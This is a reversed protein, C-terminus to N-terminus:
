LEFVSGAPGEAEWRRDIEKKTETVQSENKGLGQWEKPSSLYLPHHKETYTRIKEPLESVGGLLKYSNSHFVMVGPRSGMEMFPVWQSVRAWSTVCSASTVDPNMIEDLKGNMGWLEASQYMDDASHLPYTARPMPSERFSFVSIRFVVDNGYVEYPFPPAFRGGKFPYFRNVPDNLIHRAEVRRGTYPNDWGQLVEGSKPDLYYLVERHYFRWGDEVEEIHSAGIGYTKFLLKNGQGPVWGWASGPFGSIVEGGSVDAQLKLLALLNDKASDLDLTMTVASHAASSMLGGSIGAAGAGALLTRRSFPKATPESDSM